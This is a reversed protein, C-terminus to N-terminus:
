KLNSIYVALDSRDTASLKMAKKTHVRGRVGKKGFDALSKEIYWDQQGRIRPALFEELGEGKAGHCQVCGHKQYLMAGRDANGAMTQFSLMVGMALTVTLKM